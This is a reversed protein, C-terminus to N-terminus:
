KSSFVDAIAGQMYKHITNCSTRLHRYDCSRKRGGRTQKTSIGRVVTVLNSSSPEWEFQSRVRAWSREDDPSIVSATPLAGVALPSLAPWAGFAVASRVLERRTLM